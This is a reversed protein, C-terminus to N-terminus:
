PGAGNRPGAASGPRWIQSGALDPADPRPNQRRSGWIRQGRDHGCVRSCASTASRRRRRGRRVAHQVTVARVPAAGPPIRGLGPGARTARRCGDATVDVGAVDLAGSSTAPTSTVAEAARLPGAGPPSHPRGQAPAKTPARLRRSPPAPRDAEQRVRERVGVGVRRRLNPVQDARFPPLPDHAAHDDGLMRGGAVLKQPYGHESRTRRPRRPDRRPSPRHTPRYSAGYPQRREQESAKGSSRGATLTRRV